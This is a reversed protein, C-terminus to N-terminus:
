VGGFVFDLHGSAMAATTTAVVIAAGVAVTLVLALVTAASTM